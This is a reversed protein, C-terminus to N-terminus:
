EIVVKRCELTAGERAVVFYTGASIGRLDFGVRGAASAWRVQRGMADYLSVVGGPTMLGTELWGRRGVISQRGAGRTGRGEDGTKEDVGVLDWDTLKAYIDFGKHRRNDAWAFALVSDSAAISQGV